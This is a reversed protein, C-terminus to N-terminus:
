TPPCIAREVAKARADKRVEALVDDPSWGRGEFRRALRGGPGIVSTSLNHNVEDGGAMYVLGLAGAVKRLEEHSAAAFGWLPPRAGVLKAHKSLVAPTDHAPDFSVSLLRVRDARGPVAAVKSALEKFRRDILPCFDPLPCRTYVFTLVVVKGRLDSLRIPAGDQTTMAFDPVEAGAEIAGPTMTGFRGSPEPIPGPLAPRTVSLGKLESRDARVILTAEVEDGARVEDLESRDLVPLTMTMSGM